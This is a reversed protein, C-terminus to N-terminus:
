KLEEKLRLIEKAYLKEDAKLQENKKQLQTKQILLQVNQDYLENLWSCIVDADDVNKFTAIAVDKNYVVDYLKCKKLIFRKESM